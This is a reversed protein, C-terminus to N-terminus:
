KSQRAVHLELTPTLTPGSGDNNDVLGMTPVLGAEVTAPIVTNLAEREIQRPLGVASALALIMRLREEDANPARIRPPAVLPLQDADEISFM